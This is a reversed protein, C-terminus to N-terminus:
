GLEQQNEHIKAIADTLLRARSPPCSLRGWGMLVAKNYFVDDAAPLEWRSPTIEKVYKLNLHHRKKTHPRYLDSHHLPEYTGGAGCGLEARMAARFTEIDAGGFARKDYLFVYCYSCQRTIHKSRRLPKVGPAAAVAEDLASGNRDMIDANRKHAALQGLLIGAQFATMRYNGSHVAQGHYERGCIRQSEIKRYLDEDQTLLAGGEGGTMLKSRQFSYSGFEGITGAGRDDWRSGHTHACDEIVHLNHKRAIRMIRNMDAMRHYLHVPIIARTRSTINEEIRKPSICLTNPDIDTLIPVANVDCVASATAQWTLGPVIVEDGCGIGLAELALQLTHTGNTALTCYKSGNFEAWAKAFRAAMSKPGNLEWDDWLDSEYADLLYKRELDRRRGLERGGLLDVTVPKGGNVALKAM